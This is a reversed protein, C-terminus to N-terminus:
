SVTIIVICLRIEVQKKSGRLIAGLDWEYLGTINDKSINFKIYTHLIFLILVL